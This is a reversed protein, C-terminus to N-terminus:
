TNCRAIRSPPAGIIGAGDAVCLSFVAIIKKERLTDIGDAAM